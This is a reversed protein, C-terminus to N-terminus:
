LCGSKQNKFSNFENQRISVKMYIFQKSKYEAEKARM